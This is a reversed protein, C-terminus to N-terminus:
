NDANPTRRQSPLYRRLRSKSKEHPFDFYLPPQPSLRVPTHREPTKAKSPTQAKLNAIHVARAYAKQRVSLKTAAQWEETGVHSPGLGGLKWYLRQTVAGYEELRYPVFSSRRETNPEEIRIPSM